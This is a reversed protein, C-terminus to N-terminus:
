PRYLTLNLIPILVRFRSLFRFKEAGACCERFARFHVRFIGFRPNVRGRRSGCLFLVIGQALYVENIRV